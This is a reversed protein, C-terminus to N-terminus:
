CGRLWEKLINHAPHGIAMSNRYVTATGLQCFSILGLKGKLYACCPPDRQQKQTRQQTSLFRSKFANPTISCVSLGFEPLVFCLLVLGSFGLATFQLDPCGYNHVDRKTGAQVAQCSCKSDEIM